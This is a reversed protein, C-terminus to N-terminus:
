QPKVHLSPLHVFKGTKKRQRGDLTRDLSEKSYVWSSALLDFLRAIYNM